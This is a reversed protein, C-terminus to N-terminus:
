DKLDKLAEEREHETEIILHYAFYYKAINSVYAVTERGILKAAALESHGFWRNPDLDMELTLKRIKNLNGPGANYAAFALLTRNLDNIDPDDLYQDKLVRLYKAGAHINNEPTSIDPIGVVPDAATAPLMQMIGIAGAPSRVSQDIRSEQFAQAALMLWDFGYRDGYKQFLHISAEFRKRDETAAPNKVWPNNKLYRKLLINGVTSGRQIGPVFEDVLAALQPTDKRMAWGIEGGTRLTLDERVTLNEIVDAWFMAKHADVIVYPLTGAAVMELLDEDELHDDVARLRVPKKGRQKLSRNLKEVSAWYSSSPRLYATTGALDDLDNLLPAEPGLVVVEPIERNVPDSFAVTELREPTITLNAVVLDLHGNTLAPLLDDRPTPVILIRVQLAKPSNLKENLFQEFQLLEEYVLGRQTLGDLFYHTRRFATGVRILRRERMEKLDGRWAAPLEFSPVQLAKLPVAGDQAGAPTSIVVNLLIILGAMPRRWFGLWHDSNM